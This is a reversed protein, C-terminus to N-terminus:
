SGVTYGIPSDGLKRVGFNTMPDKPSLPLYVWTVYDKLSSPITDFTAMANPEKLTHVHITHAKGNVYFFTLGRTEALRITRFSM